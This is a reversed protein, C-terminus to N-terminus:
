AGGGRCRDIGAFARWNIGASRLDQQLKAWTPTNRFSHRGLVFLARRGHLAIYGPLEVIRGGGFVIQPLRAIDFARFMM